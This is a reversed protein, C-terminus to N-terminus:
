ISMAVGDRGYTLFASLLIWKGLSNIGKELYFSWRKAYHMVDHLFMDFMEGQEYFLSDNLKPM